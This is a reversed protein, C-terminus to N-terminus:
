RDGLRGETKKSHEPLTKYADSMAAKFDNWSLEPSESQCVHYLGEALTSRFQIQSNPPLDTTQCLLVRSQHHKAKIKFRMTSVVMEHDSVYYTFRFVLTNLVSSRFCSNVLVFNMMHGPRSRDGNHYWTAQHLPKHQFWTNTILFQNSVCLDLLRTGNENCEGLGHPGIVSGHLVFDSGVHANFDGLIIVM